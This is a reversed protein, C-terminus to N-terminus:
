NHLCVDEGGETDPDPRGADRNFIMRWKEIAVISMVIDNDVISSTKSILTGRNCIMRPASLTVGGPELEPILSLLGM